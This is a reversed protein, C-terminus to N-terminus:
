NTSRSPSASRRPDANGPRQSQRQSGPHILQYGERDNWSKARIFSGNPAVGSNENIQLTLDAHATWGALWLFERQEVKKDFAESLECKVRQVVDKIMIESHEAGTVTSLDPTSMCGPTVCVCVPLLFMLKRLM